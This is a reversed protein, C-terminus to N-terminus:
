LLNMFVFVSSVLQDPPGFSVRKRTSPVLLSEAGLELSEEEGLSPPTGISKPSEPPAIKNTDTEIPLVIMPVSNHNLPPPVAVLPPNQPTPNEETKSLTEGTSQRQERDKDLNLSSASGGRHLLRNGLSGFDLDFSKKLERLM